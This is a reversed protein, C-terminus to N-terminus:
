QYLVVVVPVSPVAWADDGGCRREWVQSVNVWQSGHLRAIGVEYYNFGKLLPSRLFFTCVTFIIIAEWYQVPRM